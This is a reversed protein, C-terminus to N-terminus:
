AWLITSFDLAKSEKDESKSGKKKKPRPVKLIRIWLTESIECNHIKTQIKKLSITIHLLLGKLWEDEIRSNENNNRQYDGGGEEKKRWIRISAESNSQYPDVLQEDKREM